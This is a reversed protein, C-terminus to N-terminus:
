AGDVEVGLLALKALLADKTFPKMLYENAGADLAEGVRDLDSETTVMLLLVEDYATNERVARVLALGDMAPMHWDVLALEIGTVAALRALGERGNEAEHTDWGLGQLVVRVAARATKSDDVILTRM